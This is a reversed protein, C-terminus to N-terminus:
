EAVALALFLNLFLSDIPRCSGTAVSQKGSVFSRHESPRMWDGGQSWHALHRQQQTTIRHVDVSLFVIIRSSILSLSLSLSLSLWFWSPLTNLFTTDSSAREVAWLREQPHKHTVLALFVGIKVIKYLLCLLICIIFHIKFTSFEHFATATSFQPVVWLGYASLQVLKLRFKLFVFYIDMRHFCAQYLVLPKPRWNINMRDTPLFPYRYRM